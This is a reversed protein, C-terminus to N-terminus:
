DRNRVVRLRGDGSDPRAGPDPERAVAEETFRALHEEARKIASEARPRAECEFLDRASVRRHWQRIKTAGDENEEVEAFTFKGDSAERDMEEVLAEAREVIEAYETARADNFRERLSAEAEAGFAEIDLADFTGRAARVRRGIEELRADDAVGSPLLCVSPGIYLGGM